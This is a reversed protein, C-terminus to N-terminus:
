AISARANSRLRTNTQVLSMMAFNSSAIPCVNRNEAFQDKLGCFRNRCLDTSSLGAPVSFSIPGMAQQAAIGDRAEL